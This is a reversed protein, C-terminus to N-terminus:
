PELPNKERGQRPGRKGFQYKSRDFSAPLAEEEAVIGIPEDHDIYVDNYDEVQRFDGPTNSTGYRAVAQWADEGDFGINENAAGDTFSQRLLRNVGLEEAPSSGVRRQDAEACPLCNAVYPLTLLREEPIPRGCNVCWGYTGQEIRQLASDIQDLLHEQDKQLGLDKSREYTESAVDAPHNDYTAFESISASRSQSLDARLDSLTTETVNRLEQLRHKFQELHARQM